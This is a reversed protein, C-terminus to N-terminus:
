SFQGLLQSSYALRLLDIPSLNRSLGLGRSHGVTGVSWAAVIGKEEGYSVEMPMGRPREIARTWGGVTWSRAVRVALRRPGYLRTSGIRTAGPADNISSVM